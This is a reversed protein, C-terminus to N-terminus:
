LAVVKMHEIKISIVAHCKAGFNGNKYMDSQKFHIEDYIGACNVYGEKSEGFVIKYIEVAKERDKALVEVWGNQYPFDPNYGFTFYFRQM